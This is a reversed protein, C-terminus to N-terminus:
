DPEDRLDFLQHTKDDLRLLGFVLVFEPQLVDPDTDHVGGFDGDQLRLLLDRHEALVRLPHELLHFLHIRRLVFLGEGPEELPDALSLFAAVPHLVLDASVQAGDALGMQGVVGLFLNARHEALDALQLGHAVAACLSSKPIATESSRSRRILAQRLSSLRCFM